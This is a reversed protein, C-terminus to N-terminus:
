LFPPQSSLLGPAAIFGTCCYVADRWPMGGRSGRRGKVPGRGGEVADVADAAEVAEVAEM